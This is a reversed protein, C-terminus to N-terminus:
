RLAKLRMHTDSNDIIARTPMTEVFATATDDTFLGSEILNEVCARKRDDLSPETDTELLVKAGTWHIPKNGSPAILRIGRDNGDVTFVPELSYGNDLDKQITNIWYNAHHESAEKSQGILSRSRFHEFLSNKLEDQTAPRAHTM